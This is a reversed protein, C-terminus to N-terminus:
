PIFQVGLEKLARWAVRCPQPRQGPVLLDFTEPIGAVSAVELKAGSDSVNRIICPRVSRGADFM